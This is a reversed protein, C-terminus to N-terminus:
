NLNSRAIMASQGVRNIHLEIFLRQPLAKLYMAVLWCATGCLGVDDSPSM